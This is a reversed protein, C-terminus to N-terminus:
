IRRTIFYEGISVDNTETAAPTGAQVSTIDFSTAPTIVYTFMGLATSGNVTRRSLFIQDTSAISTNAITVTGATLTFTGSFNTVAGAKIQYQGDCLITGSRQAEFTTTLTGALATNDLFTCNGISVVGAGAGDISPSNSSDISCNIIDVTGSSSQTIAAAAGSEIQCGSIRAISDGTFTIAALFTSNEADFTSGTGITSAVEISSAYIRIPDGAYTLTNLTGGGIQSSVIEVSSDGGTVRIGGDDVSLRSSVSNIFIDGDWNAANIFYGDTVGILCNFFYLDTTGAVASTFADTASQFTINAFSCQTNGTPPLTMIGQVIVNAVDNGILSVADALTVNEVYTGDQIYVAGGGAAAAATVAAQITQYGAEGSAGVVFPTIPFGTEGSALKEWTAVGAAKSALMYFDGATKDVYLTGLQHHVDATSPAGSAILTDVPQVVQGGGYYPTTQPSLTPM